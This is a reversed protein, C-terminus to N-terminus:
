LKVFKRSIKCPPSILTLSYMGAILQSTNIMLQENLQVVPLVLRGLLDTIYVTVENGNVQDKLASESRNIHLTANIQNIEFNMANLCPNQTIGEEPNFLRNGTAFAKFAVSENEYTCTIPHNSLSLEKTQNNTVIAIDSLNQQGLFTPYSVGVQDIIGSINAPDLALTNSFSTLGQCDTFHEDPDIIIPTGGGAPNLTITSSTYYYSNDLYKAAHHLWGGVGNGNTHIVAEQQNATNYYYKLTSSSTPNFDTMFSRLPSFQDLLKINPLSVFTSTSGFPKIDNLGGLINTPALNVGDERLPRPMGEKALLRKGM